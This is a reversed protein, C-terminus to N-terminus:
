FSIKHLTSYLVICSCLCLNLVTGAILCKESLKSHTSLQRRLLNKPYFVVAQRFYM